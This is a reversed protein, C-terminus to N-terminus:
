QFLKGQQGLKQVVMGNNDYHTSINLEKVKKIKDNNSGTAFVKSEDIGLEKAKAIMGDKHNRASIIYVDAGQTVKEKALDFGKKTNLVGDYDFSIRVSDYNSWMSECVAYRQSEDPYKSLTEEDGMCRQLYEDKSEDKRPNPM